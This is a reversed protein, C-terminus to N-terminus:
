NLTATCQEPLDQSRLDQDKVRGTLVSGIRESQDNPRTLGGGTQMAVAMAAESVSRLVAGASLTPRACFLEFPEMLPEGASAADVAPASASTSLQGAHQLVKM